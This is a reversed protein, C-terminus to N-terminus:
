DTKLLKAAELLKQYWRNGYKRILSEKLFVYLPVKLKGGCECASRCIKVKEYNVADFDSHKNIRIPFLHCSIPKKFDTKGENYAKEISCKAIGKDFFVFSCERNNVLTTTLDGQSDIVAVGKNEVADIGERQMYPKIKIYADELVKKEDELLPAGSDGEICCAGKCINLDCVFYKEFIDLSIIKDEIQIM